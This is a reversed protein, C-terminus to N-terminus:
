PNWSSSALRHDTGCIVYGIAGELGVSGAALDKKM